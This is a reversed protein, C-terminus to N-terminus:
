LARTHPERRPLRREELEALDALEPDLIELIEFIELIEISSRSSDLRACTPDWGLAEGLPGHM